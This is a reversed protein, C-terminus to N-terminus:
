HTELKPPWASKLPPTSPEPQRSMEKYDKIVRLMALNSERRAQIELDYVCRARDAPPLTELAKRLHDGLRNREGSM